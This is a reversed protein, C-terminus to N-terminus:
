LRARDRGDYPGRRDPDDNRIPDLGLVDNRSSAGDNTFTSQSEMPVAEIPPEREIRPRRHGKTM